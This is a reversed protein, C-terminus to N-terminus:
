SFNELVDLSRKTQKALASLFKIDVFAPETKEPSKEASTSGVFESQYNQHVTGSPKTGSQGLPGSGLESKIGDITVLQSPPPQITPALHPSVDSAISEGTKEQYEQIMRAHEPNKPDLVVEETILKIETLPFFSVTGNYPHTGWLGDVDLERVKVVFHERSRVEDFSRNIPGTFVTVVRDVFYQLKTITEHRM